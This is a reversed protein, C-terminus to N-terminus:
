KQRLNKEYSFTCSQKKEKSKHEDNLIDYAYKMKLYKHIFFFRAM